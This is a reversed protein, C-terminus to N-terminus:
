AWAKFLWRTTVPQQTRLDQGFFNVRLEELLWRYQDIRMDARRKLEASRRLWREEM